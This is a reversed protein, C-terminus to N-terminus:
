KLAGAMEFMEVCNEMSMTRAQNIVDQMDDLRQTMLDKVADIASCGYGYVMSNINAQWSFGGSDDLYHTINISIGDRLTHTYRAMRVGNVFTQEEVVTMASM